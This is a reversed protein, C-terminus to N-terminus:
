AAEKPKKKAQWSKYVPLLLTLILFLWLLNGINSSFLIGVDGRSIRLARM